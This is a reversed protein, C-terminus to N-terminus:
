VIGLEKFLKKYTDYYDSQAFEEIKDDPLSDLLQDMYSLVTKLENKLNSPLGSGEAQGLDDNSAEAIGPVTEEEGLIGLEEESILEDEASEALSPESSEAENVFAEPILSSVDEEQEIFDDEPLILGSDEEETKEKDLELETLDLDISLDDLTPEEIPNDQIETSLDPEEIVADSLDLDSSDQIDAVPVEDMSDIFFDDFNTDQSEEPVDEIKGEVPAEALYNTDEPDPAPTMPEVGEDIINKLEETEDISFDPLAEEIDAEELGEVNTLGETSDLDDISIDVEKFNQEFLATDDGIAAADGPEEGIDDDLSIEMDLDNINLTESDSDLSESTEQAIIGDSLQTTADAGAEETFDATNLINNLEDGTLSIKEDDESDFFDKDSAEEAPAQTKFGSFEKKLSSLEGRISALEDAIKMLLQNSLESSKNNTESKVYIASSENKSVSSSAFNDIPVEKFADNTESSDYFEVRDADNDAEEADAEDTFSPLEITEETKLFDASDLSGASVGSAGTLDGFNFVAGDEDEEASDPEDISIDPIDFDDDSFDESLDPTTGGSAQEELDDFDPLDEIDPIGLDMDDLGSIDSSFGPADSDILEAQAASSLDQPESKVWVGYEDLENPSGITTRDTYISPKNDNKM